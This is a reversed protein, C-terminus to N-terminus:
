GVSKYELPLFTARPLPSVERRDTVALRGDTDVGLTVRVGDGLDDVPLRRGLLEALAADEASCIVQRGGAVVQALVEALHISRFDDIHQVPDDLLLSRLKSWSLSLYVSLLFALGTARRQGSSFVFQPNVDDGVQLTLFRKVDGRLKYAIDDWIPHPRLRQYLESTLPLIQNLRADLTDGSARRAADHIAKARAEARRAIGLKEEARVQRTKADNQAQIATERTPALRLSMLTSVHRSVENAQEDLRAARAMLVEATPQDGVELEVLSKSLNDLRSSVSARAIKLDEIERRVLNLRNTAESHERRLEAIRLSADRAKGLREESNSLGKEFSEITHRASCVPCEDGQLGVHRGITIIQALENILDNSITDTSDALRAGLDELNSVFKPLDDTLKDIAVSLRELEAHDSKAQGLQPALNRLRQARERLAIVQSQGKTALEGEPVNPGVADLLFQTAARTQEPPIAASDIQVLRSGAENVSALAAQAEFEANKTRKQAESVISASRHVWEDSGLAGIADCLVQYRETERLDLSLESIHEDRIISSRLLQDLGGAPAASAVVLLGTLIKLQESDPDAVMSRRLKWVSEGDCFGVEVYRDEPTLGDGRWWIYDDASERDATAGRYKTLTGLLAFEIADFISSKGVGNRGDIVTFRKGFEIRVAKSYGRFGSMEVHHLRM